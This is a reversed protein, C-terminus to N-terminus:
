TKMRSMRLPTLGSIFYSVKQNLKAQLSRIEANKSEDDETSEPLNSESEALAAALKKKELKERKYEMIDNRLRKSSKIYAPFFSLYTIMSKDDVRSEAIDQPDLLAPIGLAEAGTIARGLLEL